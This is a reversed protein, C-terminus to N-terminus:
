HDIITSTEAPDSARQLGTVHCLSNGEEPYGAQAATASATPNLGSSVSETAHLQARQSKSQMSPTSQTYSTSRATRHQTQRQGRKRRSRRSATDHDEPEVETTASDTTTPSLAEPRPLLPTRMATALDSAVATRRPTVGSLDTAAVGFCPGSPTPTSWRTSHRSDADPTANSPLFSDRPLLRVTTEVMFVRDVGLHAYLADVPRATLSPQEMPKLIWYFTRGFDDQSRAYFGVVVDNGASNRQFFSTISKALRHESPEVDAAASPQMPSPSPPKTDLPNTTTHRDDHNRHADAPPTTAPSDPPNPGGAATAVSPHGSVPSPQDDSSPLFRQHPKPCLAAHHYAACHKCRRSAHVCDATLHSARLCQRCLKRQNIVQWRTRLDHASCDSSWHAHRGCFVCYPRRPAPGDTNDSQSSESTAHQQRDSRRTSVFDPGPTPKSTPVSNSGPTPESKPHCPTGHGEEVSRGGKLAYHHGPTGPREYLKAPPMKGVITFAENKQKPPLAQLRTLHGVAEHFFARLMAVLEEARALNVVLGHEKCFRDYHDNAATWAPRDPLALGDLHKLWAHHVAVAEREMKYADEQQSSLLRAQPLLQRLQASSEAAAVHILANASKAKALDFLLRTLQQEFGNAPDAEDARSTTSALPRAASCPTGQEIGPPLSHRVSGSPTGAPRSQRRIAAAHAAFSRRVASLHYGGNRCLKQRPPSPRDFLSPTVRSASSSGSFTSHEKEDSPPETPANSDHGISFESPTGELDDVAVSLVEESLSPEIHADSIHGTSFESPTGELNDEPAYLVDDDDYEDHACHNYSDYIASNDFDM